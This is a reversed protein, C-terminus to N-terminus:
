HNATQVNENENGKLFNYFEKACKVIDNASYGGDKFCDIAMELARHHLLEDNDLVDSMEEIINM